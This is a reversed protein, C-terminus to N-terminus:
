PTTGTSSSVTIPTQQYVDAVISARTSSNGAPSLSVSAVTFLRGPSKVSTGDTSTLSDIATLFSQLNGYNAEFNFNLGVATPGAGSAGAAGVTFSQWDVHTGALKAITKIVDAVAPSTPVAHMVQDVQHVNGVYAAVADRASSLKGQAALLASRESVIQTNLTSVKGREPSVVLLWMAGLAVLAAVSALALRDRTKM